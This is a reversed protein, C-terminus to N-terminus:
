LHSQNNKMFHYEDELSSDESTTENSASHKHFSQTLDQQSFRNLQTEDINQVMQKSHSRPNSSSDNQNHALVLSSKNNPPEFDDLYSNNALINYPKAATKDYNQYNYQNAEEPDLSLSDDESGQVNCDKEDSM